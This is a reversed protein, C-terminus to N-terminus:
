QTVEITNNDLDSKTYSKVGGSNIIDDVLNSKIRNRRRSLFIGNEDKLEEMYVAKADEINLDAVRVYVSRPSNWIESNSLYEDPYVKIVDGKKYGGDNDFDNYSYIQLEAM